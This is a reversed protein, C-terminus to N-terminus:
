SRLKREAVNRSPAVVQAARATGRRAVVASFMEREGVRLAAPQHVPCNLTLLGGSSVRLLERVPVSAVRMGLEVSFPCELLHNRLRESSDAQVHRKSRTWDASMKRLLANSVVAPFVLNLTGRNDAVTLEFSLSLTKEEPSMLHQIQEANEHEAFEFKLSLVQWANELERCIIRMVTELIQEEIGTIQREPVGSKGEGGLLVDILPFAAALDLQLLATAEVPMLKCTALYTVEPVRHLVESFTLHEASVLTATFAARLYAGVSHTLNGAFGEHLASIAQLQQQGIQGSQRVDWPQVQKARNGQTEGRAARVMADIQEQNLVKEV